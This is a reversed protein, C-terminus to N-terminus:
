VFFEVKGNHMDYMAGVIGIEGNEEMERLILSSKRIETVMLKINARCVTDVFEPNTSKAEGMFTANSQNVAPKIKNLLGTINGLEVGDIALMVTRCYGHGMVVALKAGSLKCAYEMSGLIDPNVVNGAVRAVFIDGIGCHFIDEVPVRSDLCSLVVAAPYQGEVASRVRETTNKVTLQNNVFEDNGKRLIEIVKGPTLTSQEEATFM